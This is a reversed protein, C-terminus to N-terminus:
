DRSRRRGRFARPSCGRSARFRRFFHPPTAFGCRVAVEAIALDTHVLLDDAAALRTETLLEAFTAGCSERVLTRTRSPSLGLHRALDGISLPGDHFQHIFQRIVVDRRAMAQSEVPSRTRGTGDLWLLLRARLQRLVELLADADAPQLRRLGRREESRRASLAIREGLGDPGVVGAFIVAALSGRHSIPMVLEALGAPCLKAFGDPSSRALERTRDIDFAICDPEGGAHRVATCLPHRHHQRSPDLFPALDGHLDHVTLILGHLHEIAQLAMEPEAHGDM